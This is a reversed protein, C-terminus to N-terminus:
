ACSRLFDYLSLLKKNILLCIGMNNYTMLYIEQKIGLDADIHGLLWRQM